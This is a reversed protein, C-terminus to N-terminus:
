SADVGKAAPPEQALEKMAAERIKFKQIKGTVTMPFENVIKIIEPIKFHAIRGECFQRIQEPSLNSGEQVAVWAGVKEGYKTDPVGFVQAACIGPCTYLFEEIERPYVNEGGRIIVDKARGTITCYGEENLIALDGTHLWGDEDIATSTAAPDKYYGKMVLYGRTCLEGQEGLPQTRGSIPDIIKIETHPLAKGVSAVRREIADQPSTQTIVPSAETLGYAITMERCHMQTLVRKMVEIPCTSGAMIGTRLSTLDFTCFDPRELEAVFMTPVGYLATCRETAVARLTEGADFSASPVVMTAGTLACAINAMVMGFCHYFPVPICLRDEETFHLVNAILYANNVINHHSLTAGKPSGTTGSTYQINIADDFDLECARQELAERGINQGVQLFEDWALTGAPANRGLFILNRLDPLASGSDGSAFEPCIEHLVALYDVDRFGSAFILTQCESQRLLYEMERRRNAPNINVLIAGISAAAFQTIVWNSCNASWIGVRDGKAVGVSLLALAAREVQQLLERYTLRLQEHCVILADRSPVWAATEKLAQGICKGLLPVDSTGCAYSMRRGVFPVLSAM